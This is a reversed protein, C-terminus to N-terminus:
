RRVGTELGAIYILGDEIIRRVAKNELVAPIHGLSIYCVRGKGYARTWVVPEPGGATETAYHITVDDEYRHIYLEDTVAFPETVTFTPRATATREVTYPEIRGHSVFRGGLIDFYRPVEKFSASAGHIALMGGGGVVFRDLADLAAESIRKRHFYLVVGDFRGENLRTLAEVRHVATHEIGDMGGIIGDLRRRGGITPHVLGASVVLLRKKM